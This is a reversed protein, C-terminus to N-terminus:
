ADLIHVSPLLVVDFKVTEHSADIDAQRGRM